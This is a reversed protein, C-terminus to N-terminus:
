GARRGALGDLIGNEIGDVLGRWGAWRLRRQECGGLNLVVLADHVLMDASALRGCDDEFLHRRGQALVVLKGQGEARLDHLVEGAVAASPEELLPGQEHRISLCADSGLTEWGDQRGLGDRGLRGSGLAGIADGLWLGRSGTRDAGARTGRDHHSGGSAAAWAGRGLWGAPDHGGVALVLVEVGEGVVARREAGEGAPGVAELNVPLTLGDVQGVVRVVVQKVRVLDDEGAVEAQVAGGIEGALTAHELATELAEPSALLEALGVSLLSALNVDVLGRLEPRGKVLNAPEVGVPNSAEQLHSGNEPEEVFLSLPHASDKARIGHGRKRTTEERSQHREMRVAARVNMRGGKAKVVKVVMLVEMLTVVCM